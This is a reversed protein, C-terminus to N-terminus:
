FEYMFTMYFFALGTSEAHLRYLFVQPHYRKPQNIRGKCTTPGCDILAVILFWHTGHYVTYVTYKSVLFLGVILGLLLGDGSCFDIAGNLVGRGARVIQLLPAVPWRIM